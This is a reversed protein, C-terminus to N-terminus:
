FNNSKHFENIFIDVANKLKDLILKQDSTVGTISRIWTIGATRYDINKNYYKVERQFNIAINFAKFYDNGIVDLYINLNYPYIISFENLINIDNQRLALEVKSRLLEENLSLDEAERPNLIIIDVYLNPSKVELGNGQEVAKTQSPILFSIILFTIILIKKM